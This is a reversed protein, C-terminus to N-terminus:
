HKVIAVSLEEGRKTTNSEGILAQVAEYVGIYGLSVSCAGSEIVKDITEDKGLRAIAGHQWHIPSINSSTGRLLDVRLMLAEYCLELREDFITWFKDLDGKASLAIDPM